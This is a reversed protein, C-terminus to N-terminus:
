AVPATVTIRTTAVGIVEGSIWDQIEFEIM